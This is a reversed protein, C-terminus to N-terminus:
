TKIDRFVSSKGTVATFVDFRVFIMRNVPNLIRSFSQIALPIAVMAFCLFCGLAINSHFLSMEMLDNM